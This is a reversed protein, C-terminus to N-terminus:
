LVLTVLYFNNKFHFKNSKKAPTLRPLGEMAGDDGEVHRSVVIVGAGSYPPCVTTKKLINNKENEDSDDSDEYHRSMEITLHCPQLRYIGYAFTQLMFSNGLLIFTVDDKFSIHIVKGRVWLLIRPLYKFPCLFSGL